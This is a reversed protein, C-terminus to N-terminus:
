DDKGVEDQNHTKWVKGIETVSSIPPFCTRRVDGRRRSRQMEEREHISGQVVSRHRERAHGNRVQLGDETEYVGIDAGMEESDRAENGAFKQTRCKDGGEQSVVSGPRGRGRRQADDEENNRM